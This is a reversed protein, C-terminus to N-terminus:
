NRYSEKNAVRVITGNNIAYIKDGVRLFRLEEVSVAATRNHISESASLEEIRVDGVSSNNRTVELYFSGERSVVSINRGGIVPDATAPESAFALRSDEDPPNLWVMYATGGGTTSWGRRTASVRERWGIGGVTVSGRGIFAIRAKSVQQTWINRRENTVILGSTNVTTSEGFAEVEVVSVMQNEVDEAYFVTYDRVEVTTDPPSASGVTIFNTAIAPGTLAAASLLLVSMWVQRSSLSGVVERDSTAVALTVVVALLAILVVGPGRFLVYTENGRYWYVAWLAEDAAFILVAVWVRWADPRVGRRWLIVVGLLVGILLGIAHGQIAIEAWWPTTPPRPSPSATLSPNRLARYLLSITSPGGLAAVVTTLPYRVIAFGAFAFVVGSFGIVPGLSFLSTALGVGIVGAPFLVLARIWPNRRWSRFTEQGRGTPFHGWAYEAIPAFIITGFLNGLLHGAGMHSFPATIVGLPYFYSWSRFPVTMPNYWRDWGGQLFLYVTLVLGVVVLTGWPVGMVFQRRLLEGFRGAPRDLYWVALLSGLLVIAVLITMMLGLNPLPGLVGREIM